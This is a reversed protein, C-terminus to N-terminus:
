EDDWDVEDEEPGLRHGRLYRRHRSFVYDVLRWCECCFFQFVDVNSVEAAFTRLLNKEEDVQSARIRRNLENRVDNQARHLIENFADAASQATSTASFQAPFGSWLNLFKRAGPGTEAYTADHPGCNLAFGHMIRWMHKALFPGSGRLGKLKKMVERKRLFRGSTDKVVVKSPDLSLKFIDRLTQPQLFEQRQMRAAQSRFTSQPRFAASFLDRPDQVLDYAWTVIEEMTRGQLKGGASAISRALERGSFRSLFYAHLSRTKKTSQRIIDRHLRSTADTVEWGIRCDRVLDAVTLRSRGAATDRLAESGVGFRLDVQTDALRRVFPRDLGAGDHRDAARRVLMVNLM